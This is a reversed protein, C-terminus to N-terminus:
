TEERGENRNNGEKSGANTKYVSYYFVAIRSRSQFSLSKVKLFM